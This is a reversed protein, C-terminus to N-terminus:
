HSMIIKYSEGVSPFFKHKFDEHSIIGGTVGIDYHALIGYDDGVMTAINVNEILLDFSM